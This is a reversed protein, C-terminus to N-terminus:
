NQVRYFRAPGSPTMNFPSATASVPTWPGILSSSQLLTGHNWTLQNGNVHVLTLVGGADALSDLDAKSLARNFIAVDDIAGNYVRSSAVSGDQDGGIWLPGDFDIPTMTGPIVVSRVGNTGYVSVTANTPTIVLAAFSWTNAPINLGTNTSWYVNGWDFGLTADGNTDQQTWALGAANSTRTWVLGTYQVQITNGTNLDANAPNIWATITASNVNMGLAPATVVDNVYTGSAGSFHAAANTATFGTYDNVPVPGAIGEAVNQVNAGYSADFGGWLDGAIGEGQSPDNTDNFEYFAVPNKALVANAYAGMPTTVTLSAVSSTVPPNTSTAVLQYSGANAATVNTITLTATTAGSVNAALSGGIKQWQLTPAPVGAVTASFVVPAPSGAYRATSVPQSGFIPAVAEGSASAYLATVEGYSLARKYIAVDDLTGNLTRGTNSQDQGILTQGDFAQVPHPYSHVAVQPSAATTGPNFLYVTADVPTVVLVVFSWQGVPPAIGSDWNWTNGDNAWNYGLDTADYFVFGACTTGARCMAVPASFPQAGAPNIWAAFTASATNLNLVPLAIEANNGPFFAAGINNTFNPYGDAVDPGVHGDFANSVTNQYLGAFGGVHDFAVATGTSPDNTENLEYFCVPGLAKTEAAFADDPTALVNLTVISSTVSNVSNTIIVFYSAIDGASVNSIQLSTNTSGFINGGDSLPTNNKYWQYYFPQGGTCGVSLTINEGAFVEENLPQTNIVVNPPAPVYTLNDIYFTVPGQNGPYPDWYAQIFGPGWSIGQGKPIPVQVHYWHNTADGPILWEATTIQSWGVNNIINLNGFNGASNVSGVSNTDVLIDFEEYQYLDLNVSVSNDWGGLDSFGHWACWQDSDGASWGADFELSGSAPNTAADHNPNWENALSIGGFWDQWPVANTDYTWKIEPTQASATSAFGALALALLALSIKKIIEVKM